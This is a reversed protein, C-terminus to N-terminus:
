SAIDTRRLLMRVTGSKAITAVFPAPFDRVFQKMRPLASVIAQAMDAGRINGATLLFTRTNGKMLAALEAPRRRIRKDKTLAVWNRSGVEALWEDDSVDDNFHDTLLEVEVGADRLAQAVLHQGLCQDLFFM